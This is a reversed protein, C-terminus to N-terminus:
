VMLNQSSSATLQVHTDEMVPMETPEIFEIWTWQHYKIM